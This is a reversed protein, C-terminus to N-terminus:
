RKAPPNSARGAPARRSATDPHTVGRRGIAVVTPIAGGIDATPAKDKGRDQQQGAAHLRRAVYDRLVLRRRPQTDLDAVGGGDVVAREGSTEEQPEARRRVRLRPDRGVVGRPLAIAAHGEERRVHGIGSRALRHDDVGRRVAIGVRAQTFQRRAVVPHLRQEMDVRLVAALVAVDDPGRLVLPLTLAPGERRAVEDASRSANAHVRGRACRDLQLERALERGDLRGGSVSHTLCTRICLRM